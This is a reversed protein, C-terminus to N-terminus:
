VFRECVLSLIREAAEAKSLKGLETVEGNRDLLTIVNTDSGFGAGEELPNNVAVLDLNKKALKEKAGKMKSGTELAFGVVFRKGKKAAAERLIDPTAKLKLTLEGQRRIKRTRSKAPAYDSVAAAMILGQARRFEKLVAERMEIASLAQIAKVGPPPDVDMRGHIFIVEAGRRLAAEALARGMKGSSYNTIIRVPDIPEETRGATVIIRKGSLPGIVAAATKVADLISFTEALRGTGAEGCALDGAGPEVILVGVTRLRAVNERVVRNEYMARNMAPAVVIRGRVALAATSLADDAIGCALKAILNATAPAILLVDAWKGLDVHATSSFGGAPSDYSFSSDEPAGTFLDKLVPYGSLCEFTLPCVFKTAARTMVVRVEAGAKQLERLIVAAKYAAISGTIGLLVKKGALAPAEEVAM